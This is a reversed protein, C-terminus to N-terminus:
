MEYYQRCYELWWKLDICVDKSNSDLVLQLSEVWTLKTRVSPAVSVDPLKMSELPSCTVYAKLTTRPKFLACEVHIISEPADSWIQQSLVKNEDRFLNELDWRIPKGLSWDMLTEWYPLTGICSLIISECTNYTGSKLCLRIDTEFTVVCSLTQTIKVLSNQTIYAGKDLFLNMM